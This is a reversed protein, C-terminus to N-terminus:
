AALRERRWTVSVTTCIVSGTSTGRWARAYGSTTRRAKRVDAVCATLTVVLSGLCVGSATGCATWAKESMRSNRWAPRRMKSALAFRWWRPGSVMWCDSVLSWVPSFARWTLVPALRVVSLTKTLYWQLRPSRRRQKTILADEVVM